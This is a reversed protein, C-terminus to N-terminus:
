VLRIRSAWRAEMRARNGWITNIEGNHALLRFPQALSWRPLVNTAFRQHFIAFTCAYAPDALDPFFAALDGSACLAKYVITQASLSCVYANTEREFAKRLFSLRREIEDAGDRSPHEQPATTTLLAQRIRPLGDRAKPGLLSPDIPVDRWTITTFGHKTTLREFAASEDGADPTLFLMAVALPARPDLMSSIQQLFFDRPLQTLIGVGDSSHGDSAVAGRHGLRTLAVLARDIVERSPQGDLSAVFGVGCADRDYRSDLLSQAM